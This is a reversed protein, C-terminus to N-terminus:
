RPTDKIWLSLIIILVWSVKKQRIPPLQINKKRYYSSYAYPPSKNIVSKNQYLGKPCLSGNSISLLHSLLWNKLLPVGKQYNTHVINFFKLITLYYVISDSVNDKNVANNVNKINANLFFILFSPKDSYYPSMRNKTEDIKENKDRYQEVNKLPPIKCVVCIDSNFKEICLDILKKYELFNEDTSKSNHKLVINTGDQIM